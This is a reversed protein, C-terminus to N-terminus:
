AQAAPPFDAEAAAPGYRHVVGQPDIVLYGLEDRELYGAAIPVKGHGGPIDLVYTPQCLGSVPGRLRRVLEQGAAVSTRFHGTGPALDGQHLYYPKVRLRVLERFLEELAEVSDNVGKLLVTQSLLPFGGDALDALAGRAKPGLEQRHNCHVVIWVPTDTRLAQRLDATVLEPAVVPVRTHIRVVGVHPIRDLEGVIRELRRASLMLPDGGTLIVEWIEPHSRIYDLAAALESEGLLGQGPGVMERRFCFRCYVPCLHLPKLLVRDRYRHTIGPVPTFRADGIPDPSEEPTAALELVSPVFQAAIPDDPRHSILEQMAPTVSIAYRHAVAEVEAAKQANLLGAEALGPVTRITRSRNRM